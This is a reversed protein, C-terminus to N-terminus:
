KTMRGITKRIAELDAPKTNGPADYYKLGSDTVETMDPPPKEKWRDLVDRASPKPQGAAHAAKLLDYLPKGYGQFREPRKLSWAPAAPGDSAPELTVVPAATATNQAPAPQQSEWFLAENNMLHHKAALESITRQKEAIERVTAPKAENWETIKKDLKDTEGRYYLAQATLYEPSHQTDSVAELETAPTMGYEAKLAQFEAQTISSREDPMTALLVAGTKERIAIYFNKVLPPAFQWKREPEMGALLYGADIVRITPLKYWHSQM